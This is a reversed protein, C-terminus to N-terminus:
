VGSQQFVGGYEPLLVTGQHWYPVHESIRLVKSPELMSAVAMFHTCADGWRYRYFGGSEDLERFYSRYQDSRM